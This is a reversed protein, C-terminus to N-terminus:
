SAPPLVLDPYMALALNRMGTALRPGPRTIETDSVTRVDGNKVATLKSWGARKAISEPTPSYFANTGLIIVEPDRTVLTELPIEYTIKDGTIVDVGLTGLMEALFSGEGPAFIQGTSDLYGVDYLVRPPKAAKASEAKAATAIATMDTRMKATLATAADAEGVATGVLEIDKYIGDISPTSVVLVPIGLSRLKAISEASTFGAGGAIVLDPELAVIKEVDVTGFTVVDPLAKAEAPYDSSDDTAVVRDGAGVAFLTETVAPTLSVVKQPEAKLAVATGEDDTLTAPFAPAPTPTATALATAAATPTPVAALATASPVQSATGSSCAALIVIISAFLVGLRTTIPSSSPSM